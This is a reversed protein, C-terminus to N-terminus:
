EDESYMIRHAYEHAMYFATARPMMTQWAGLDENKTKFIVIVDDWDQKEAERICHELQEIVTKKATPLKAIKM